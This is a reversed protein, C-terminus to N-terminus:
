TSKVDHGPSNQTSPMTTMTVPIMVAMTREKLYTLPLSLPATPLGPYEQDATGLAPAPLPNPHDRQQFCPTTGATSPLRGAPLPHTLMPLLEELSPAPPVHGAEGAAQWCGPEGHQAEKGHLHGPEVHQVRGDPGDGECQHAPAPVPSPPIGGKEKGSVRQGQLEKGIVGLEHQSVPLVRQAGLLIDVTGEGDVSVDDVDEGEDQLYHAPILGPVGGTGRWSGGM